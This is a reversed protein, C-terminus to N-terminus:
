RPWQGTGMFFEVTSRVTGSTVLETSALGGELTEVAMGLDSGPERSVPAQMERIADPGTGALFAGLAVGIVVTEVEGYDFPVRLIEVMFLGAVHKFSLVRPQFAFLAVSGLVNGGAHAGEDLHLVEVPREDPNGFGTGGTVFVRVASAQARVACVAVIEIVPLINRPSEIVRLGAVRQGAQVPLHLAFLAVGGPRIILRPVNPNRERLAVVAVGIGVLSAEGALRALSAMGGAAPLADDAGFQVLVEIVGFGLVRQEALVLSHFANGAVGFAVELLRELEGLAYVAVLVRVVALEHLAGVAALTGGAVVDVTPLRGLEVHLRVGGGLVREFALVRFQLARLAMGRLPLVRKVFHLEGAAQVAMVILVLGLEGSRRPQILTLLAVRELSELRRRKRQGLVFLGAERQAVAVQGDQAAVAM